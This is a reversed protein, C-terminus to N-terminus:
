QPQVVKLTKFQDDCLHVEVSAGGFVHRSLLSALEKANAVQAPDQEAGKRVTTRFEIKDGAKNVQVFEPTAGFALEKTLYDGLKSAEAQTVSKTYYLRGDDYKLVSGLPNQGAEPRTTILPKKSIPNPRVTPMPDPADEPMPKPVKKDPGPNAPKELDATAPRQVVLSAFGSDCLHLEVTSPSYLRKTILELWEEYQDKVKDEIDEATKAGLDVRVIYKEGALSLQIRLSEQGFAFKKKLLDGLDSADEKTVGKTYFIVGKEYRLPTGFKMEEPKVAVPESKKFVAGALDPDLGQPFRTANDYLAGKFTASKGSYDKASSIDAGRLDANTFDAKTVDSIGVAGKLSAGILKAGQFSVGELRAGDLIAGTLDAENFGSNRLKAETFNAGMLKAYAFSAGTCNILKFNAKAGRANAFTSLDLTAREFNFREVNEKSYDARTLDRNSRDVLYEPEEASITAMAILLGLLCVPFPRFM